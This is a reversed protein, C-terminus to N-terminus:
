CAPRFALGMMQVLIIFDASNVPQLFVDVYPWELVCAQQVVGDMQVPIIFDTSNAPQFSSHVLTEDLDIAM